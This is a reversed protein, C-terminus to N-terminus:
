LHTLPMIRRENMDPLKLRDRLARLKAPCAPKQPELNGCHACLMLDYSISYPRGRSSVGQGEGHQRSFECALKEIPLGQERVLALVTVTESKSLAEVPKM